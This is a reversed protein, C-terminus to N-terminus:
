QSKKARREEQQRKYKEREALEDKVPNSEERPSSVPNHQSGIPSPNKLHDIETDPAAHKKDSMFCCGAAHDIQLPSYLGKCKSGIM